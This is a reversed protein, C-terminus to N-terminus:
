GRDDDRAAGTNKQVLVIVLVVWVWPTPMFVM